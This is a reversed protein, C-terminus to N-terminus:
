FFYWNWSHGPEQPLILDLQGLEPVSHSGQDPPILFSPLPLIVCSLIPILESYLDQPSGGAVWLQQASALAVPSSACDPGAQPSSFTVLEPRAIGCCDELLQATTEM